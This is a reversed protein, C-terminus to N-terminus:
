IVIFLVFVLLVRNILLLTRASIFSEVFLALRNAVTAASGAEPAVGRDSVIYSAYKYKAPKFLSDDKPASSSSLLMKIEPEDEM